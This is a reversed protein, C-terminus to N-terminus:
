ETPLSITFVTGRRWTSEVGIKGGHSVVIGYIISLGLGVGTPKTSFFPDFIRIIDEEPIGGGTDQIKVIFLGNEISTSITMTGGEPMAEVSNIIVNLFVRSIQERDVSIISPKSDFKKIVEIRQTSLSSMISDLVNEIVEQMDHPRINLEPPRACNILETILFNIRETNRIIVEIHKSWPSDESFAEKLQQVAMSVNGLPNRIEHAIGAAIRGTFALRESLISKKNQKGIEKSSDKDRSRSM